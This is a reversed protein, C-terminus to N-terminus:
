MVFVAVSLGYRLPNHTQGDADDYRVDVPIEVIDLECDAAENIMESEVGMGDTRLDLRSVAEPSFARFGSQIDTLNEGSSGTTLYDLVRQGFRRHLPTEMEEQRAYRSEIEALLNGHLRPSHLVLQHVVTLPHGDPIEEDSRSRPRGTVFKDNCVAIELRFEKCVQHFDRVESVAILVSSTATACVMQFCVQKVAATAQILNRATPPRTAM